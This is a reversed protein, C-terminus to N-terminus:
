YIKITSIFKETTTDLIYLEFGRKDAHKICYRAFKRIANSLIDTEDVPTLNVYIRYRKPRM